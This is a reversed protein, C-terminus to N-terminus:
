PAHGSSSNAPRWDRASEQILACARELSEAPRVQEQWRKCQGAIIPSGIAQQVAGVLKEALLSTRSTKVAVGLRVARFCNDFHDGAEPAIVQPVGAALAHATTGVGGSHIVVASRPLIQRLPVYGAECLWPDDVRRDGPAGLGLV